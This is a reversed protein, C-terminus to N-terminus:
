SIPRRQDHTWKQGILDKPLLGIDMVPPLMGVSHSRLGCFRMAECNQLNSTWPSPALVVPLSSDQKHAAEKQQDKTPSLKCASWDLM